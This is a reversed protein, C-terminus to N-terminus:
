PTATPTETPTTTPTSTPTESPTATATPSVTPTGTGEPTPSAGPPASPEPSPSSAGSPDDPPARDDPGNQGQEDFGHDDRSAPVLETALVDRVEQAARDLEAALQEITLPQSELDRLRKRLAKLRKEGEKTLRMPESGAIIFQYAFAATLCSTCNENLAIAVNQPTVTSPDGGALM